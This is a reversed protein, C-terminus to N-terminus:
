NMASHPIYHVYIHSLFVTPNPQPVAVLQLHTSYVSGLQLYTHFCRCKSPLM